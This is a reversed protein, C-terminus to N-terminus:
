RKRCACVSGSTARTATRGCVGKIVSDHPAPPAYEVRRLRAYEPVNLVLFPPDRLLTVAEDRTIAADLESTFRGLRIKHGDCTISARWRQEHTDWHVGHFRSSVNERKRRVQCNERARGRVLNDRWNHRPNGDLHHM